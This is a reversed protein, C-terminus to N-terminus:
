LSFPYRGSFKLPQKPMVPLPYPVNSPGLFSKKGALVRITGPCQIVINGGELTINAGGAVSLSIKKPSAIDLFSRVSEILVDDKAALQLANSQAQVEIDGKAAIMTLGKGAAETGPEIAGALLGIAQGTHIRATGGVAWHTDQGSATTITEGATMQLDLGATVALGAKAAIAVIPNTTHPQKGDGAATSKAAADAEAKDMATEDVMGSVMTHLAALPAAKEDILSKGPATSGIHNSLAVTQHLRAADSMVQGLTKLQKGLAMAAANDGAPEQGQAGYSSLLLGNAARVAGYADTRLEFGLGRFSGRHNDAQHILHGLNLQTAHQTTALQARLQSNSDDFALQNFGLAGFEQTKWGSLAAANRQGGQPVADAASAGHWAPSRGGALNGQASPRHDSSQSFASADAEAPKGGPTPTIGAEGQGDYLAAVVLPRDIDGDIFDVLVDQGIRPIFQLGMGAGAHRQLVRVWTSTSSTDPGMGPQTQFDYRIRIRGLADMHIEQEGPGVVTATLPGTITPKPNLRQGNGDAQLPRWPVSARIAEFRNAYGSAAVQTKLEEGVWEALLEAGGEHRQTVIAQNSDKPLNNIGAHVVRTLLFRKDDTGALAQLPDLVSETLTFHSGPTFSRVTGRGLWTKHRTEHAQQVLELAREAQAQNGFAYAGFHDYAELQPAQAGGFRGRTPVSAARVRKAKYDWGLATAVASPLQRLGGFAQVADQDEIIGARHFRIGQGGLASASSSDEPCSARNVSDALIVLRHGMPAADDPEFRYVLGDETLLRQVFALDTERYQVTYSRVGEASTFPSMALHAAVCDAWQWAAYASYRSFVSEIIEVLSKEQWVQSRRTHALLGLWCEVDLRYRAFGGDSEEASARTVVGSRLLASGDSLTTRLTLQRGLMDDLDLDPRLALASIQMLWTENLGERQCWAEVLLEALPGEGQLHYLRDQTLFGGTLAAAALADLNM